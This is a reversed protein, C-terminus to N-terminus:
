SAFLILVVLIAPHVTNNPTTSMNMQTDKMEGKISQRQMLVRSQGNRQTIRGHKM